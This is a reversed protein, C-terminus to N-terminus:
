AITFRHRLILDYLFADAEGLPTSMVELGELSWFALNSSEQATTRSRYVIGDLGDEWWGRCSDALTQCGAFIHPARSTNIQDDVGLLDQTKTTRLDLIRLVRTTTLQVLHHELDAAPIVRGSSAYRERAAGFDASAAYRTRFEGSAPDFRYRTAAFGQWGWTAPFSSDIRWFSRDAAIARRALGAPRAQPFTLPEPAPM